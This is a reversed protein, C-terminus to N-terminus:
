LNRLQQRFSSEIQKILQEYEDKIQRNREIMEAIRSNTVSDAIESLERKKRLEILRKKGYRFNWFAEILRKLERAHQEEVLLIKRNIMDDTEQLQRVFILLHESDASDWLDNAASKLKYLSEWLVLYLDSQSKRYGSLIKLKNKYHEAILITLIGFVYSAIIPIIPTIATIQDSINALVMM